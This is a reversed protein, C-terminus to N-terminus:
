VHRELRSVLEILSNHINAIRHLNNQIEGLAGAIQEPTKSAEMPTDPESGALRETVTALRQMINQAQDCLQGSHEVQREISTQRKDAGTELM